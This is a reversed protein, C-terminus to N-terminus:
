SSLPRKNPIGERRPYREPTAAIKEIVVLHRTEVVGPLTVHIMQRLHGGLVQIASEASHVEAPASEGKMALVKGGVRVLPMLYEILVPMVAVARALAWDYKERHSLEQGIREARSQIVEVNELALTDVIHRCFAVKKEVSEVLTLKIGPCLIKLPIGPFGAGTGIDVLSNVKSGRMALYASLSDLFHKIRVDDSKRISTLSHRDNWIALEKEYQSFALLQHPNLLIGSLKHFEHALKDM